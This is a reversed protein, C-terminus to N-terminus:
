TSIPAEAFRLPKGIINPDSGFMTTWARYSVVIAFPAQPGAVVHHDHTLGGGRVMPLGFLDFFGEGVGTLVVHLPTGDDRVLTADFPQASMAAAHVISM